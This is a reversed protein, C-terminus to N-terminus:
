KRPCLSKCFGLLMKENEIGNVPCIIMTSFQGFDIEEVEILTVDLVGINWQEM